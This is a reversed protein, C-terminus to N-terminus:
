DRDYGWEIPLETWAKALVQSCQEHDEALCLFQGKIVKGQEDTNFNFPIIGEGKDPRYLVQAHDILSLLQDGDLSKRFQINRMKWYGDPMFHRALVAPYTAGTVRANIECIIVQNRGGQEIVVFDTSATGRYGQAHLWEGAIAGQRFLEEKLEPHEQIYPPPSMNGEHVSAESLIQETWDFLSVIEDDLFMQISPSGIRRVGPTEEDLWGQVMCPGEFFLYNPISDLRPNQTKLKIMGYGSAGIQAKVVAQSYGLDRLRDLAVPVEGPNAALLTEFVPLRRELQHRYLLYKNNGNKSGEFTSITRKNLGTAVEVLLRDTVFGDVWTAAHGKLDEVPLEVESDKICTVLDQYGRHDLVAFSPLSLRLDGSLYDLLNPEPPAELFIKNPGRRFLLNLISIVRSGYSHAGYIQSILDNVEEQNDYFISHMNCFFLVNRDWFQPLRGPTIKVEPAMHRLSARDTASACPDM